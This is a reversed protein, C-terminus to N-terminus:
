QAFFHYAILGGLLSLAAAAWKPLGFSQLVAVLLSWGLIFFLVSRLNM